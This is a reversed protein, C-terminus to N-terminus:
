FKIERKPQFKDFSCSGLKKSCGLVDSPESSSFTNSSLREYDIKDIRAQRFMEKENSKM